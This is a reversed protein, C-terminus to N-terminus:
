SAKSRHYIELMAKANRKGFIMRSGFAFYANVYDESNTLCALFHQFYFLPLSYRLSTEKVDKTFENVFSLFSSEDRSIITDLKGISDIDFFRFRELEGEYEDDQFFVCGTNRSIISRATKFVSSSNIYSRLSAQDISVSNPHEKISEKVTQEYESLDRKLRDFEIDATELLAALRNFSRKFEDPIAIVGKYGLDHEIEAWAHQLISRIQIELKLGIYKRNESIISRESNLSAVYHLSKYGFQDSKLRRKDVSHDNDVLFEREVLGAVKSVDSELYTIVRIGCIDTIEDISAYKNDKKDIKRSLSERTKLRSSIDHVVILNDQLLENLIGKCKIGFNSYLACSEDFKKLLIEKM